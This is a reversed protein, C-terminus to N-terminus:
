IYALTVRINTLGVSTSSREITITTDSVRWEDPLNSNPGYQATTAFTTIYVWVVRNNTYANTVGHSFSNTSVGTGLTTLYQRYKIKEGAFYDSEKDVVVGNENDDYVTMKDRIHKGTYIKTVAGSRYMAFLSYRNGSGDYYGQKATDWTGWTNTLTPTVTTGSVVHKIYCWGDAIGTTTLATDSVYECMAGNIELTSGSAIEPITTNGSAWETLSVGNDGYRSAETYALEREWETNTSLTTSPATIIAGAM